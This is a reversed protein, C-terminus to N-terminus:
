VTANVQDIQLHIRESDTPNVVEHTRDFRVEWLYGPELHVEVGDDPWRMKIDPHSKLPVQFRRWDLEEPMWEDVHPPIGQRPMLKRCFCRKVEGGLRLGSILRVLEPPAVSGQKTVWACVGGSDAFELKDLVRLVASIDVPKIRRYVEHEALM